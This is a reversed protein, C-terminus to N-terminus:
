VLGDNALSKKLRDISKQDKRLIFKKYRWQMIRKVDEYTYGAKTRKIGLTKFRYYIAGRNLGTAAIIEAPTYRREPRGREFSDRDDM